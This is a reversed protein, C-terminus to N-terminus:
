HEKNLAILKARAFHRPTLRTGYQAQLIVVNPFVFLKKAGTYQSPLSVKLVCLYKIHLDCLVGGRAFDSVPNKQAPYREVRPYYKGIQTLFFDRGALEFTAPTEFM